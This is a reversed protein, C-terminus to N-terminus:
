YLFHTFLALNDLAVAFDHHDALVGLMLLTLSLAGKPRLSYHITFLSYNLSPEARVRNLNDSDGENNSSRKM